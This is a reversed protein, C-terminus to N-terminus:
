THGKTEKRKFMTNDRKEHGNYQRDKPEQNGMKTDEFKEQSSAQTTLMIHM